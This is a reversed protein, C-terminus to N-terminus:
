GNSNSRSDALYAAVIIQSNNQALTSEVQKLSVGQDDERINILYAPHLSDRIVLRRDELQDPAAQLHQGACCRSQGQQAGCVEDTRIAADGEGLAQVGVANTGSANQYHPM